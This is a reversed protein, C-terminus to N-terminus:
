DEVCGLVPDQDDASLQTSHVIALVDPDGGTRYLMGPTLGGAMAAENNAYVPIGSTTFIIRGDKTISFRPVVTAAEDQVGSNYSMVAQLMGNTADYRWGGGYQAVSPSGQFEYRNDVPDWDLHFLFAKANVLADWFQIKTTRLKSTTGLNWLGSYTKNTVTGDAAIEIRDIGGTKLTLTAGNVSTVATLSTIDSNSGSAAAGLNIRANEATGAGTGGRNVPLTGKTQKVIDIQGWAGVAAFFLIVLARVM